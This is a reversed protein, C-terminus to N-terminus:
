DSHLYQWQTKIGPCKYETEQQHLPERGDVKLLYTWSTSSSIVDPAQRDTHICILLKLWHCTLDEIRWSNKKKVLLSSRGVMLEVTKIEREHACEVTEKASVIGQTEHELYLTVPQNLHSPGMQVFVKEKVGVHFVGPATIFFRCAFM